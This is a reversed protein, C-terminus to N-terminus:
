SLAGGIGFGRHGNDYLYHDDATAGLYEWRSGTSRRPCMLAASAESTPPISKPTASIPSGRIYGWISYDKSYSGGFRTGRNESVGM